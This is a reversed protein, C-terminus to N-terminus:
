LDTEDEFISENMGENIMKRLMAKMKEAILEKFQDWLKLMNSVMKTCPIWKLCEWESIHTQLSKLAAWLEEILSASKVDDSDNKQPLKLSLFIHNIIYNLDKCM